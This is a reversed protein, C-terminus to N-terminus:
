EHRPSWEERSTLHWSGCGPCEYYRCEMGVLQGQSRRRQQAQRLAEAVEHAHFKLKGHRMHCRGHPVIAHEIEPPPPIAANVRRRKPPHPRRNKRPM